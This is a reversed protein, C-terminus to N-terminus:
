HVHGTDGNCGHAGPAVISVLRGDLRGHVATLASGFNNTCAIRTPTGDSNGADPTGPAADPTGPAADPTGPAADHSGPAADPTGPAADAGGAAADSTSGPNSGDCGSAVLAFAAALALMVNPHRIPSGQM